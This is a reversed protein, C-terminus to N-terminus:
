NNKVNMLRAIDEPPNFPLNHRACEKRLAGYAAAYSINGRAWALMKHGFSEQGHPLKNTLLQGIVDLMEDLQANSPKKVKVFETAKVEERIVVVKEGNESRTKIQRLIELLKEPNDKHAHLQHIHSQTVVGNQAEIHVEKPLEYLKKRVEIWGRSKNLKSAVQDIKFGGRLFYMIAKAEQLINLDERQLNENLNAARADFEDVLDRRIFAPVTKEANVKFAMFPNELGRTKIDRALELVSMPNIRGRCNFENDVLIEDVPVQEIQYDM